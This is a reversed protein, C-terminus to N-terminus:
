EVGRKGVIDIDEKRYGRGDISDKEKVKYKKLEVYRKVM